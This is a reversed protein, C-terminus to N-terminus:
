RVSIKRTLEQVQDRISEMKAYYEERVKRDKDRISPLRYELLALEDWLLERQDRYTLKSSSEM